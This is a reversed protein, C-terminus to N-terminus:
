RKLSKFLVLSVYKSRFRHTSSLAVMSQGAHGKQFYLHNLVAPLPKQQTEVSDRSLSIRNLPTQQLLPPLDPLKENFDGSSFPASNYSSAPSPPSEPLCMNNVVVEPVVDKLDLVNFVRGMHDRDHPFDPAYRWEGDVIFRFHYIGSPLMKMVTFDKDTRQLYDRTQWDDWSGEVAVENGGQRWTIMTPIGNGLGMGMEGYEEATNENSQNQPTFILPSQYARPTHLPSYQVMSGPSHVYEMYEEEEVNKAGSSEAEDGNRKGSVNGM